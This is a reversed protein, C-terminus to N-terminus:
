DLKYQVDSNKNIKHETMKYHCDMRGKYIKCSRVSGGSKIAIIGLFFLACLTILYHVKINM